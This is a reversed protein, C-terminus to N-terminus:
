YHILNFETKRGVLERPGILYTTPIRFEFLSGKRRTLLVVYSGFVLM